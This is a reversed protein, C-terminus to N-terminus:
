KSPSLDKPGSSLVGIIIIIIIMTVVMVVIIIIILHVRSPYESQFSSGQRHTIAAPVPIL